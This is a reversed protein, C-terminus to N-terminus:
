GQIPAPTWAQVVVVFFHPDHALIVEQKKLRIRMFKLEDRPNIDRVVSRGKHGLMKMIKSFSNAREDKMSTSGGGSGAGSGNSGSSGDAKQFHRLVQGRKTCIVYALVDEKKKIREICDEVVSM